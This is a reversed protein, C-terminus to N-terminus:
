KREYIWLKPSKRMRLFEWVREVLGAKGNEGLGKLSKLGKLLEWDVIWGDFSDIKKVERWSKKVGLVELDSPSAESILHTIESRATLASLALNETKDYRTWESESTSNLMSPLSSPPYFPPAYEQLFLSAGTQAALNSIHVHPAQSTSGPPYKENFLALAEGGPYNAISTTAFFAMAVFNALIMASAIGFTLRGILNSKPRSVLWRAGRAAAVNVAPVVYVIFRWEKHGLCSILLVFLGYPVLFERIRRDILLGLASLPLSSLLLKPLLSSLYTHFPSVGWESSKGEVVNFYISSFEPWLPTPFTGWMYTDVATTLAISCLASLLGVRVTDWFSIYGKWLSQLVTPGLLLVLESRFIVGAGTILAIATSIRSPSPRTAQPARELMLYAAINVPLLAFMNPLTRGMWFLVHFQSITLVAYLFGTLRGFRKHVARRILCLGIANLTSLVLRVIIQLDFKRSVFGLSSALRIVPSSIFALFISGNFTRPVAGPFIYHDYSHLQFPALGYMLVDHTAHLNFSEEVKTYPALLVYAWGTALISADLIVSM